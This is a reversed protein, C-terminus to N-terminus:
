RSETEFYLCLLTPVYKTTSHKGPILLARPEIGLVAFFLFLSIFSCVFVQIDPCHGSRGLLIAPM